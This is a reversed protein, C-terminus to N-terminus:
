PEPPTVVEEVPITEEIVPEVAVTEEIVPQEEAVPETVPETTVTEETASPSAESDVPPPIIEETPVPEVPTEVPTIPEIPAIPESSVPIEQAAPAMEGGQIGNGGNEEAGKKRAIVMWDFMGGEDYANIERVEFGFRSKAHVYLAGNLRTTPTVIVKIPETESIVSAFSSDFKIKVGTLTQGGESTLGQLTASGSAIIEDRSGTVGYTRYSKNTEDETEVQLVTSDALVSNALTYLSDVLSALYSKAVTFVVKIPNSLSSLPNSPATPSASPASPVSANSLSFLTSKITAVDQTLQDIQVQQAKVGALIFSSLKYIDVGKGDISLVEVPAEEAILGLRAKGKTISDNSNPNQKSILFQDNSITDSIYNYTAVRASKIKALVDMEEDSDLYEIDKKATRTSINIFSTAAVDGMVALKYMPTTSGIGVNGSADIVLSPTSTPASVLDIRSGIDQLALALLATMRDYKVGNLKLVGDMDYNYSALLPSVANVEEAVFGLDHKIGAEKGIWDYERPTLQMVTALGGLSLDVVNEKFQSLSTCDTILSAGSADWCLAETNATAFTAYIDGAGAAGVVLKAETPDTDGIGVNGGEDIRMAEALTGGNATSFVMEGDRNAGTVWTGSNTEVHISAALNSNDTDNSSGYWSLQGLNFGSNIATGEATDGRRYFILERKDTATSSLDPLMIDGFVDLKVDTIPTLQSQGPATTGIGVNGGNNIYSDVNANANFYIKNSGGDALSLYGADNGTERLGGLFTGASNTLVIGNDSGANSVQFLFAPSTTGIGVNGSSNIVLRAASAAQDYVFFDQADADALSRGILFGQGVTSGTSGSFLVGSQTSGSINTYASGTKALTLLANPTTSGIGVNGSPTIRMRENGAGALQTSFLLASDAAADNAWTNNKVLQIFSVGRRTTGDTDRFVGGIGIGASAGANTNEMGVMQVMTNSNAIAAFAVSDSQITAEAPNSYIMGRVDLKAGPAATGIGVNGDTVLLGYNNTAGTASFYGAINTTAAGQAQSITGYVTGSTGTQLVNVVGVGTAMAGRVDLRHSPGTTGIGVNGGDQVKFVTVGNDQLDMLAGTSTQNLLFAPTITAFSVSLGGGPTTTGIGVGGGGLIRMRETNNTAFVIPTNAANWVVGAYNGVGFGSGTSNDLGTYFSGGTNRYQTFAYGTTSDVLIRPDTTNYLHLLKLPGATGIGVNGQTGGATSAGVFVNGGIATLAAPSTTGIGVNGTSDIRMRETLVSPAADTATRFTIVGAIRTEAVTGESFFNIDAVSRFGIGDHGQGLFRGVRDGTTIITPSAITGRSFGSIIAPSGNASAVASRFIIDSQSDQSTHLIGSPAATGIGVNGGDQVKFVTVGNDQVEMLDGAGAQNLLFAPTTTNAHISLIA